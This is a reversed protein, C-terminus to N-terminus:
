LVSLRLHRFECLLFSTGVQWFVQFVFNVTAASLKLDPDRALLTPHTAPEPAIRFATEVARVAFEGIDGVAGCEM